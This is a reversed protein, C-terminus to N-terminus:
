GEPTTLGKLLNFVDEATGEKDPEGGFLMFDDLKFPQGNNKKLMANAWHSAILALTQEIRRGANLSGNESVYACWSLYESYSM